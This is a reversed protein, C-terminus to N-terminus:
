RYVDRRHDIKIVEVTLIDDIISYIIRYVRVRIRYSNISGSLKVCGYPRPNLSLLSLTKHIKFVYDDPISKFSKQAKPSLIVNYQKM